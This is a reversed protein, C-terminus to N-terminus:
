VDPEDSLRGLVALEHNKHWKPGVEAFRCVRGYEKVVVIVLRCRQNYKSRM